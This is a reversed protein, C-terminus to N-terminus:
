RERVHEQIFHRENHRVMGTAALQRSARGLSRIRQNSYGLLAGLNIGEPKGGRIPQTRIESITRFRVRYIQFSSSTSVPTRATEAVMVIRNSGFEARGAPGPTEGIRSTPMGAVATTMLCLLTNNVIPGPNM